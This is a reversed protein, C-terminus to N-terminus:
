SYIFELIDELNNNRVNKLYEKYDTTNGKKKIVVISPVHTINLKIKLDKEQLTKRILDGNPRSEDMTTLKVVYSKYGEKKNLYNEIKKWVPKANKCFSCTSKVFLLVCTDATECEKLKQTVLNDSEKDDNDGGVKELMLLNNIKQLEQIESTLNIFENNYLKEVESKHLKNLNSAYDFNNNMYEKDFSRSIKVINNILKYTLDM